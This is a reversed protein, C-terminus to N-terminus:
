GKKERFSIRSEIKQKAERCRLLRKETTLLLKQAAQQESLSGCHGLKSEADRVMDSLRREWEQHQALDQYLQSISSRMKPAYTKEKARVSVTAVERQLASIQNVLKECLHAARLSSLRGSEKERELTDVVSRAETVCPSLLRSLCTFLREDFLPKAGEGRRRDIDAAKTALSQLESKLQTLDM